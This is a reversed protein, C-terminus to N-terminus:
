IAVLHIMDTWRISQSLSFPKRYDPVINFSWPHIEREHKLYEQNKTAQELDKHAHMTKLYGDIVLIAAAILVINIMFVFYTFLLRILKANCFKEKKVFIDYAMDCDKCFIDNNRIVNATM